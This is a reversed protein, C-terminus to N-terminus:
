PRSGATAATEVPGLIELMGILDRRRLVPRVKLSLVDLCRAPDRALPSVHAPHLAGVTRFTVQCVGREPALTMRGAPASGSAAAVLVGRGSRPLPERLRGRHRAAARRRGGARGVRVRFSDGQRALAAPAIPSLGQDGSRYVGRLGHLEVGELMAEGSRIPYASRTGDCEIPQAFDFWRNACPVVGLQFTDPTM